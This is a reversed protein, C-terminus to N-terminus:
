KTQPNFDAYISRATAINERTIQFGYGEDYASSEGATHAIGEQADAAGRSWDDNFDTFAMDIALRNTTM